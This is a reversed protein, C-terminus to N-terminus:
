VKDFYTIKRELVDAEILDRLLKRVQLANKVNKLVIVSGAKDGSSHTDIIVTITGIKLWRQLLSETLDPDKLLYLETTNTKRNFFGKKIILEDKTIQYTTFNLHLFTLFRDFIGSPKGEWKIELDLEKLEEM